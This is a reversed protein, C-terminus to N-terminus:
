ESDLLLLLMAAATGVKECQVYYITKYAPENNVSEGAMTTASWTMGGSNNGVSAVAHNHTPPTWNGGNSCSYASVTGTSGSHSHTGANSHSHSNSASHAHTNSGGTAAIETGDNAVKIYKDRLDPTNHLGDTWARGDCLLWGPPISASSDEWMAIMGKKITGTGMNYLALLKYYVPEVTGSTVSGSYTDTTVNTAALYVDHEHGGIKNSGSGSGNDINRTNTAGGSRGTHSHSTVHSHSLDHAHTFSGAQTGANAGTGAGRIYRNRMDPTSNTGDPIQWGLPIENINSYIIHHQQLTAGASAKVFIVSHYPPLNNGAVSPYAVTSSASGDASTTITSATHGHNVNPHSDTNSGGNDDGGGSNYDTYTVYHSHTDTRPHTHASSVHAHQDVGGSTGVAEAGATKLIKSDLGTVRAWNAPITAHNGNYPLILGTLAPM